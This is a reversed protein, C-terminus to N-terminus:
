RSTPPGHFVNCAIVGDGPHTSRLLRAAMGVDHVCVCAAKLGAKFAYVRGGTSLMGLAPSIDWVMTVDDREFLMGLLASREVFAHLRRGESDIHPRPMPAREPLVDVVRHRMSEALSPALRLHAGLHAPASRRAVRAWCRRLDRAVRAVESGSMPTHASAMARACVMVATLGHHRGARVMDSALLAPDFLRGRGGTGFNGEGLFNPKAMKGTKPPEEPQRSNVRWDVGCGGSFIGDADVEAPADLTSTLGGRVRALM